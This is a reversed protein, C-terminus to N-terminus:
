DKTKLFNRLLEGKRLLEEKNEIKIKRFDKYFMYMAVFRGKSKSINLNDLLKLPSPMSFIKELNLKNDSPGYQVYDAYRFNLSSYFCYSINMMTDVPNLHLAILTTEPNLKEHKAHMQLSEKLLKYALGRKRYKKGIVLSFIEVVPYKIEQANKIGIYEKTSMFVSGATERNIKLVFTNFHLTNFLIDTSTEMKERFEHNINTYATKVQHSHKVSGRPLHIIETTCLFKILFLLM